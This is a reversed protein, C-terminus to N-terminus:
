IQNRLRLYSSELPDNKNKIVYLKHKLDNIDSEILYELRKSKFKLKSFLKIFRKLIKENIMFTPKLLKYFMIAYEDSFSNYVLPLKSFFKKKLFQKNITTFHIPRNFGYMLSKIEEDTISKKDKDVFLDWM